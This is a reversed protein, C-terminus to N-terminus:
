AFDNIVNISAIYGDRLCIKRQTLKKCLNEVCLMVQSPPDLPQRGRKNRDFDLPKLIAQVVGLNMWELDDESEPIQINARQQVPCNQGM